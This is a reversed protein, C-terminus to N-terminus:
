IGRITTVISRANSNIISYYHHHYYYYSYYYYCAEIKLREFIDISSLICVM